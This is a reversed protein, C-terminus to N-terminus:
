SQEAARGYPQGNFSLGSSFNMNAMKDSLLGIERHMIHQPRIDIVSLESKKDYGPDSQHHLKRRKEKAPSFCESSERTL